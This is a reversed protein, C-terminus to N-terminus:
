DRKIIGKKELDDLIKLAEALRERTEPSLDHFDSIGHAAAQAEELNTTKAVKPQDDPRKQDHALIELIKIRQEQTLPKGGAKIDITEDEFVDILDIDDQGLLWNVSVNLIKSINVLTDPDPKRIDKEYRNVTADTSGLLKGLEAQTLGKDQRAKKIREGLTM